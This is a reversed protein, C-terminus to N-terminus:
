RGGNQTGNYHSPFQNEENSVVTHPENSVSIASWRFLMLLLHKFSERWKKFSLFNDKFYSASNPHSRSWRARSSIRLRGWIERAVRRSRKHYIRNLLFLIFLQVSRDGSTPWLSERQEDHLSVKSSALPAFFYRCLKVKGFCHCGHSESSLQLAPDPITRFPLLLRHAVVITETSSYQKYAQHPSHVSRDVSFHLHLEGCPAHNGKTNHHTQTHGAATQAM